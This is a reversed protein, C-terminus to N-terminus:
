VVVRPTHISCIKVVCVCVCVCVSTGRILVCGVFLCVGVILVGGSVYYVAKPDVFLCLKRTM